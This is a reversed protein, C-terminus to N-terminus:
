KRRDKKFAEKSQELYEQEKKEDWNNRPHAVADKGNKKEIAQELKAILNPDRKKKKM